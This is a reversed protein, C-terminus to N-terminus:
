HIIIKYSEYKEHSIIGGEMEATSFSTKLNLDPNFHVQQMNM